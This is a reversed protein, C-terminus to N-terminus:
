AIAASFLYGLDSACVLPEFTADVKIYEMGDGVGMVPDPARSYVRWPSGAQRSIPLYAFSPQSQWAVANTQQYNVYLLSCFKGWVYGLTEAQGDNATDNFAEGVFYREVGFYRALTENTVTVGGSTYKVADLIKPHVLLANHVQAGVIMTNPSKIMGAKADLVAKKPDSNTTDSWQTVGALTAKNAAPYTSANFVLSALLMELDLLIADKLTEMKAVRVDMIGAALRREDDDIWAGLGRHRLDHPTKTVKIELENASQRPGYVTNARKFSVARDFKPWSVRDVPVDIWPFIQSGILNRNQYRVALQSLEPREYTQNIDIM